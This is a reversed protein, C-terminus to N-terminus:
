FIIKWSNICGSILIDAPYFFLKLINVESLAPREGLKRM